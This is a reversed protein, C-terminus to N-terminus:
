CSEKDLQEQGGHDLGPIPQMEHDHPVYEQFKTHSLSAKCNAAASSTGPIPAGGSIGAHRLGM